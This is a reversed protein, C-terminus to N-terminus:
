PAGILTNLIVLPRPIAWLPPVCETVSFLDSVIGLLSM